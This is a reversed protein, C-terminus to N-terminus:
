RKKTGSVPSHRVGGAQCDIKSEFVSFGTVTIKHQEHLERLPILKHSM